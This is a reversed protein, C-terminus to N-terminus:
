LELTYYDRFYGVSGISEKFRFLGDAIGEHLGSTTGLDVYKFSHKVADLLLRHFIANLPRLQQFDPNHANYFALLAQRNVAFALVGAIPQKKYYAMYLM